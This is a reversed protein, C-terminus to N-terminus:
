GAPVSHIEPRLGWDCPRGACCHRPGTSNSRSPAGATSCAAPQAVTQSPDPTVRQQVESSYLGIRSPRRDSSTAASWSHLWRSEFGYGRSAFMRRSGCTRRVQMPRRIGRWAHFNARHSRYQPRAELWSAPRSSSMTGILSAECPRSPRDVANPRRTGDMATPWPRTVRLIPFGPSRFVMSLGTAVRAAVRAHHACAGAPAAPSARYHSHRSGTFQDPGQSLRPNM